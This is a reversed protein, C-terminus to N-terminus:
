NGIPMQLGSVRKAIGMFFTYSKQPFKRPVFIYAGTFRRMMGFQSGRLIKMKLALPKIILTRDKILKGSSYHWFSVKKRIKISGKKLPNFKYGHGSSIVYTRFSIIKSLLTKLLTLIGLNNGELFNKIIDRIAQLSNASQIKDMLISVSNEFEELDQESIHITETKLINDSNFTTIEVPIYENKTKNKITNSAQVVGLPLTMLLLIILIAMVKRKGEM